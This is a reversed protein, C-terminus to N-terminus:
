LWKHFSHLSTSFDWLRPSCRHLGLHSSVGVWQPWSPCSHHLNVDMLGIRCIWKHQDAQIGSSYFTKGCIWWPRFGTHTRDAVYVDVKEHPPTLFFPETRSLVPELLRQTNLYSIDNLIEKGSTLENLRELREGGATAMVLSVLTFHARTVRICMKWQMKMGASRFQRSTGHKDILMICLEHKETVWIMSVCVCVLILFHCVQLFTM